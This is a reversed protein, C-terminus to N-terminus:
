FACTGGGCWTLWDALACLFSEVEAEGKLTKVQAGRDALLSQALTQQATLKGTESKLEVFWVMGFPLVCIRDPVGSRSPSTFKWCLGGLREIGKRLKEEARAEPGKRASM